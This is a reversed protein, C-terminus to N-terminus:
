KAFNELTALNLIVLKFKLAHVGIVSITRIVLILKCTYIGGICPSGLKILSM